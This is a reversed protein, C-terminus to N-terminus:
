PTLTFKNNRTQTMSGTIIFATGQYNGQGAASPTKSVKNETYVGNKPTTDTITLTGQGQLTFCLGVGGSIASDDYTYRNIHKTTLTPDNLGTSTNYKGIYIENTSHAISLVNTVDVIFNNNEDLVQYDPPNTSDIDVLKAGSPFATGVYDGAAHEDVAMIGLLQKMGLAESMPPAATEVAGNETYNGQLEMTATITVLNTYTNQAQLNGAALVSLMFVFLGAIIKIKLKV